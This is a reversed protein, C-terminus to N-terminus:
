KITSALMLKHTNQKRRSRQIIYVLLLLDIIWEEPKPWLSRELNRYNWISLAKTVEINLPWFYNCGHFENGRGHTLADLIIHSIGGAAFARIIWYLLFNQPKSWFCVIFYLSLWLILTHLIITCSDGFVSYQDLMPTDSSYNFLLAIGYPIDPVFAGLCCALWILTKSPHFKKAWAFSFLLHTPPLM